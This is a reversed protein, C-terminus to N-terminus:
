CKHVENKSILKLVDLKSMKPYKNTYQEIIAKDIPDTTCIWYSLPDPELVLVASHNDQIFYLESFKGKVQKLSKILEIEVDKLGLLNKFSDYDVGRQKLIIKSPSNQMIANAISEKGRFDNINQSISWIAANSKRFTRYAEVAFSAGSESEFLKWSEDLILLYKQEINKSAERRIFDTLLLLLVNQLDPYADLGKMEISVLNKSLMVNTEGDLISGYSRDGTWSYLIKAYKKIKESPHKELLSKFDSLTPAPRSTKTTPRLRENNKNQKHKYLEFIMEELEAKDIKSLGKNGIESESFMLELVALILKVKSAPPTTDGVDLDFLNFCIKSDLRLDVFQGDFIEVLNRSSEGNDIWVIKPAPDDCCFMSVLSNLTFSKGSGSSGVVFGNWNPLKSDFPDISVLNNNRNSLLCVSRDNGKWCSYMPLLHALNSSKMQKDRFLECHGPIMKMFGYISPITEELGESQNMDKFAQLIVNKKKEIEDSTIGWILVNMDTNVIKENSEILETMLQEIDNLKSESELDRIGKNSEFLFSHTMRRTLKLKNMEKAQDEIHVSQSLILPFPIKLFAEIMSSSTYEPLIKLTLLKFFYKGLKISEKELFLDTLFFQELLNPTLLHGNDQFKPVMLNESRSLNFYEYLLQFWEERSISKFSSTIGMLASEIGKLSNLFIEKQSSYEEISLNQFKKNREILKLKKHPYPASRVFLYLDPSFFAGKSAKDRLFDIRSEIITEFHASASIAKHKEIESEVNPLLRYYFQYRYNEPLIGIFNEISENLSNIEDDTQVSIDIGQLHYGKGISGDQHVMLDNDFHWFNIFNALTPRTNTTM